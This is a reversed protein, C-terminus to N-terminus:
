IRTKTATSIKSVKLIFTIAFCVFLFYCHQVGLRFTGLPQPCGALGVGLM